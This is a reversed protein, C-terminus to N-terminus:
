KAIKQKFKPYYAISVFMWTLALCYGAVVDSPFHVGVYIRSLGVSLILFIAVTWILVKLPKSQIYHIFIYALSSYFIMAGMSHGSPFSYGGQQVLHQITPRPRLFIHKVLVNILGSGIALNFILWLGNGWDKKVGILFFSVIVTMFILLLTSGFETIPIFFASKGSTITGRLFATGQQDFSQLWQAKTLLATAFTAFGIFSIFSLLLWNKNLPNTQQEISKTM